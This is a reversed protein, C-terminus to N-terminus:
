KLTGLLKRAEEAEAFDGTELAKQLAERAKAPQNSEALAAGLRYRLAASDPAASVAQELVTVAETFRKNRM